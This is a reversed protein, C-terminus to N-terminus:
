TTLIVRSGKGEDPLSARIYKWLNHSWVDDLVVVYRKSELYNTIMDLLPVAEKTAPYFEKIM